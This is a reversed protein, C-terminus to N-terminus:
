NTRLVKLSVDVLGQADTNSARFNAITFGKAQELESVWRILKDFEVDDLSVQIEQNRKREQISSFKLGHSKASNSVIQNLQGAVSVHGGQMSSVQRKVTPLQKAYYDADSVQFKYSEKLPKIVFITLCLLIIAIVLIMVLTRESQAM